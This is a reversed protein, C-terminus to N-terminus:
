APAPHRARPCGTESMAVSLCGRSSSLWSASPRDARGATELRWKMHISSVQAATRRISALGQCSPGCGRAGRLPRGPRLCRAEQAVDRPERRHARRLEGVTLRRRGLVGPVDHELVQADRHDIGRGILEAREALRGRALVRDQDDFGLPHHVRELQAHEGLRRDGSRHRRLVEAAETVGDVEQSRRDGSGGGRVPRAGHSGRRDVVLRGPAQLGRARQDAGCAALADRTATSSVPSRGRAGPSRPGRTVVCDKMAPSATWSTWPWPVWQMPVAHPGRAGAAPRAVADGVLRSIKAPLTSLLAPRPASPPIRAPMSQATLLPQATIEIDSPRRRRGPWGYECTSRARRGAPAPRPCASRRRPRCRSGAPGADIPGTPCGAFQGDIM